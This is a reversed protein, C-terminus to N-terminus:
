RITEVKIIRVKLGKKRARAICDATGKSIGDWFAVLTKAGSENLMKQNRLIGAAKGLKDWEAHYNIVTIGNTLAWDEALQDAGRPCGGTVIIFDDLKATLADLKDYIFKRQTISRSGSVIIKMTM